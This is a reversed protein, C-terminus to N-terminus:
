LIWMSLMDNARVFKSQCYLEQSNLKRRRPGDTFAAFDLAYLYAASSSLYVVRATNNPGSPAGAKLAPHLLTSLLYPSQPSIDSFLPTPSFAVSSSMCALNSTM